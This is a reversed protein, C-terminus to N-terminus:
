SLFFFTPWTGLLTVTPTPLVFMCTIQTIIHGVGLWLGGLVAVDVCLLEVAGVMYWPIFVKWVMLHHRLWAASVASGLLPARLHLLMGLADAGCRPSCCASPENATATARTCINAM